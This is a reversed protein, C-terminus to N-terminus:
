AELFKRLVRMANLPESLVPLRTLNVCSTVQSSDTYSSPRRCLRDPTVSKTDGLCAAIQTSTPWALLPQLCSQSPAPVKPQVWPAPLSQLLLFSIDPAEILARVPLSSAKQLSRPLRAAHSSSPPGVMAKCQPAQWSGPLRRQTYKPSLGRWCRSLARGLSQASTM